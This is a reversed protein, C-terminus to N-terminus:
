VRVESQCVYAPFKLVSNHNFYFTYWDVADSKKKQLASMVEEARVEFHDIPLDDWVGLIHRRHTSYGKEFTVHLLASRIEFPEPGPPVNIIRLM